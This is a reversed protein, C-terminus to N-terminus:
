DAAAPLRMAAPPARRPCPDPRRADVTARRTARSDTVDRLAVLTGAPERGVHEVTAHGRQRAKPQADRPGPDELDASALGALWATGRDIQQTEFASAIEDRRAPVRLPYAVETGSALATQEEAPASLAEGRDLEGIVVLDRDQACVELTPFPLDAREKTTDSRVGAIVLEPADRRVM